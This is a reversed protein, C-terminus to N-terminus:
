VKISNNFFWYEKHINRNPKVTRNKAKYEAYHDHYKKVQSRIDALFTPKIQNWETQLAEIKNIETLGAFLICDFIDGYGEIGENSLYEEYKATHKFFKKKHYYLASVIM